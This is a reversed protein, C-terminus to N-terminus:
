VLAIMAEWLAVLKHPFFFVVRLASSTVVDFLRKTLSRLKLCRRPTPERQLIIAKNSLFLM